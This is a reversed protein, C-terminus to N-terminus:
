GVGARGYPLSRGLAHLYHHQYVTERIARSLRASAQRPVEHGLALPWRFFRLDRHIRVNEQCVSRAYRQFSDLKGHVRGQRAECQQTLWGLQGRRQRGQQRLPEAGICVLQVVTGVKAAQRRPLPATNLKFQVDAALITNRGFAPPQQCLYVTRILPGLHVLLKSFEAAMPEACPAEDNRLRQGVLRLRVEEEQGPRFALQESRNEQSAGIGRLFDRGCRLPQEAEMLTTNAGTTAIREKGMQM